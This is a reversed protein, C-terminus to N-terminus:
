LTEEIKNIEDDTITTYEIKGIIQHIIEINNKNFVSLYFVQRLMMLVSLGLDNPNEKISELCNNMENLFGNLESAFYVFEEQDSFCQMIKILTEGSVLM